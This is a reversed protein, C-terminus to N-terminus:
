NSNSADDAMLAWQSDDFRPAVGDDDAFVTDIVKRVASPDLGGASYSTRPGDNSGSGDGVLLVSPLSRSALVSINPYNSVSIPLTPDLGTPTQYFSQDFAIQTSISVMLGVSSRSFQRQPLPPASAAIESSVSDIV